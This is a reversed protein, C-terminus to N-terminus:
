HSTLCFCCRHGPECLEGVCCTRTVNAYSQCISRAFQAIEWVALVHGASILQDRIGHWHRRYLPWSLIPPGARAASSGARAASSSDATNGTPEPVYDLDQVATGTESGIWQNM